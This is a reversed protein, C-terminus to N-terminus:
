SRTASLADQILRELSPKDDPFGAAIWAAEAHKLAASVEPGARLGRGILQGGSIPFKPSAWTAALSLAANLEDGPQACLLLQDEFGDRGLRYLHARMLAADLQVSNVKVEGMNALRKREANSLKLRHGIDTLTEARPRGLLAALRRLPVPVPEVAILDALHSASSVEPLFGAFIRAELMLVITPLPNPVALLKLLEDRIRERSLAMLAASRRACAAASDAHLAGGFRAHFRYFRLIRLGDETIRQDPDGIFRVTRTALDDLGGFYDSVRGQWDAYLANITFDRRAADGRWDQTFAVVARRGDTEVDHRLTTVEFKTGLVIVTVTGHALGTPIVKFGAAEARRIVEDPEHTTALDIDASEVGLLADRVCGGVFRAEHRGLAALLRRAAKSYRWAANIRPATM